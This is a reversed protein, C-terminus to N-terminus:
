RSQKVREIQFHNWIWTGIVLSWWVGWFVEIDVCVKYPDPTGPDKYLPDKAIYWKKSLRVPLIDYLYDLRQRNALDTIIPQLVGAICASPNGAWSWCSAMASINSPLNTDKGKIERRDLVQLVTSWQYLCVRMIIKTINDLDQLQLGVDRQYVWWKKIIYGDATAAATDSNYWILFPNSSTYQGSGTLGLGFEIIQAPSWVDVTIFSWWSEVVEISGMPKQGMITNINPVSWPNPTPIMPIPPTPITNVDSHDEIKSPQM